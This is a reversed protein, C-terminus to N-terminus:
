AHGTGFINTVVPRGGKVGDFAKTSLIASSICIKCARRHGQPLTDLPKEGKNPQVVNQDGDGMDSPSADEGGPPPFKQLCHYLLPRHLIYRAGYYKARMRAINIDEVPPDGDSWQLWQPLNQRWDDLAANLVDCMKDKRDPVLGEYVEKHVRNLIKRLHIQAYYLFMMTMAEPDDFDRVTPFKMRGDDLSSIGSDPLDLEARIDSELQFSTWYLIAHLEKERSAPMNEFRRGRNLILCGRSAQAIWGYSQFPHALQGTYIGALLAAQVHPVRAGGQFNGLINTAFVYYAFGPIIDTNRLRRPEIGDRSSQGKARNDASLSGPPLIIDGRCQCISGVALVLLVIANEISQEVSIRHQSAENSRKRKAGRPQDTAISTANPPPVSDKQPCYIKIFREVKQALDDKDFFPHLRYMHELYSQHYRRVTEPDTTFVGSPLQIGPFIRPIPAPLGHGRPYKENLGSPSVSAHASSDEGEGLGHPRILGREEELNMVYEEGYEHPALLHKIWPWSLLKHAATSHELPIYPVLQSDDIPPGKGKPPETSQQLSIRQEADDISPGKVGPAPPAHQLPIRPVLESDDVLPGKVEPQKVKNNQIVPSNLSGNAQTEADEPKLPLNLEQGEVRGLKRQARLEDMIEAHHQDMKDLILQTSREQRYGLM